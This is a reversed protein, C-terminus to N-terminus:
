LPQARFLSLAFSLSVPGAAGSGEMRRGREGSVGSKWRGAEQGGVCWARPEIM